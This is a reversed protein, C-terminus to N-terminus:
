DRLDVLRDEADLAAVPDFNPSIGLARSLLDAARQPDTGIHIVGAHYLIAPDASGHALAEDITQVADGIAGAHLQAWALTDLTYTDTRGVALLHAKSLAETYRGTDILNAILPRDFVGASLEGIVDITTRHAAAQETQGTSEYLRAAELLTQPLPQMAISREYEGASEEIRGQAALSRALGAIAAPYREFVTLSSRYAAEAAVYDGSTFALDGLRLDFWALQEGTYRQLAADVRASRMLEFATSYDGAIESLHAIRAELTPSDFTLRLQEYIERAAEYDGTAVAVDAVVVEAGSKPDLTNALEAEARASDFDHLGFYATSLALRAPAYEPLRDIAQNLSRLALSYEGVDGTERARKNHLEGLITASIADSPTTSVRGAFYAIAQSTSMVDVPPEQRTADATQSPRFGLGGVVFGVIALFGIIQFLRTRM